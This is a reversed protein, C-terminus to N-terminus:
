VFYFFTSGSNLDVLTHQSFIKTDLVKTEADFVIMSFIHLSAVIFLTDSLGPLDM